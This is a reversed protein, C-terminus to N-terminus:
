FPWEGEENEWGTRGLSDRSGDWWAETIGVLDYGQLRVHMEPEEHKNGM